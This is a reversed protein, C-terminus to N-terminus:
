PPSGKAGSEYWSRLVELSERVKIAIAEQAAKKDLHSFQQWDIPSGIVCATKGRLKPFKRTRDWVDFSGHIYVPMIPAHCRLALMGIGSKIPGLSGDPTRNGEPFIVVKKNENLLHCIVKISGLDQATGTVPYANLRKIAWGVLFSDFLSKRALFSVEEPWSAAVLPPDIFSAHNPAIIARGPMVHEQGYVEHRYFLQIYLKTFNRVTWFLPKM